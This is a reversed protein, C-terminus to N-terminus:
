GCKGRSWDDDPLWSIGIDASALEAAETEESWPCFQVSLNRLILNRDSIVKLNLGPQSKAMDDLLDGIKELSRMTGSSGIWVLRVGAGVREHKARRYREPEVCTPVVVI